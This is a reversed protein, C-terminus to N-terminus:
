LWPNVSEEAFHMRCAELLADFDVGIIPCLHMFDVVSDTIADVATARPWVIPDNLRQYAVLTLAARQIRRAKDDATADLGEAFAVLDTVMPDGPLSAKMQAIRADVEAQIEPDLRIDPTTM